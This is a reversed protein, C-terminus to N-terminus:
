RDQVGHASGDGALVLDGRALGHLRAGAHGLSDRGLRGRRLWGEASWEFIAAHHESRRGLGAGRQRLQNVLASQDDGANSIAVPRLADIATRLPWARPPGGMLTVAGVALRAALTGGITLETVVHRILQLSCSM